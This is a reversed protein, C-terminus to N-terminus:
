EYYNVFIKEDWVDETVYTLAGSYPSMHIYTGRDPLDINTHDGNSALSFFYEQQRSYRFIEVNGAYSVNIAEDSLPYAKNVDRTAVLEISPPGTKPHLIRYKYFSSKPQDSSTLVWLTSSDERLPSPHASLVYDSNIGPGAVTVIKVPTIDKIHLKPATSQFLAEMSRISIELAKYSTMHLLYGPILDVVISTDMDKMAKYSRTSLKFILIHLTNDVTTVAFDGCIKMSSFVNDYTTKPTKEKILTTASGTSFDLRLIEVFNQKTDYTRIGVMIIVAKGEDVVEAAFKLVNFSEWHGRYQWIHKGDEVALCELTDQHQFLIYRGGSLLKVENLYGINNPHDPDTISSKVVLQKAILPGAPDTWSRPGRVTRRALNVLELASLQDLQQGPLLDIFNRRHLDSLVTLWVQKSLALNHFHRSSQSLALISHIDCSCFIRLLVDDVLSPRDPSLHSTSLLAM